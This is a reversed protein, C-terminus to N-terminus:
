LRRITAKCLDAVAGHVSLQNASIVTRLLFEINAESGNIHTSKKGQGKSRLEEREFDSSPRFIPHRSVSFKEM